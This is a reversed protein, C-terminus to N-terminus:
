LEGLRVGGWEEGGGTDKMPLSTLIDPWLMGTPQKERKKKKRRPYSTTRARRPLHSAALLRSSQAM